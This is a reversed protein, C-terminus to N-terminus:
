ADQKAQRQSPTQYQNARATARPKGDGTQATSSGSSQEVHPTQVRSGAAGASSNSGTSPKATLAPIYATLNKAAYETLPIAQAKDDGAPKVLPVRVPKGDKTEDRFSIELRKDTILERLTAPNYGVLPAAEDAIARRDHDALKARMEPVGDLEKKVDAAKKGLAKFGEYEKAEDATLVVTGPAEFKKVKERLDRRDDRLERNEDALQALADEARGRFRNLLKRAVGRGEDTPGSGRRAERAERAEKEEATEPM